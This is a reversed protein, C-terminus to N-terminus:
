DTELKEYDTLPEENLMLIPLKIPDGGFETLSRIKAKPFFRVVSLIATFMWYHSSGTLGFYVRGPDRKRKFFDGGALTLWREDDAEHIHYISEGAPGLWRECVEGQRVPFDADQGMFVLTQATPKKPDLFERSTKSREGSTFFNRLFARDVWQGALDNCKKCVQRTIFLPPGFDGGLAQPWIHEESARQDGSRGACYVCAEGTSGLTAAM